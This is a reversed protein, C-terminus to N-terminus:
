VCVRPRGAAQCPRALKMRDGSRFRARDAVVVAEHVQVAHLVDELKVGEALPLAIAQAEEEDAGVLLDEAVQVVAEAVGVGHVDRERPLVPPGCTGRATATLEGLGRPGHADHQFRGRHDDPTVDYGGLARVAQRFESSQLTDLVAVVRPDGLHVKPICLDFRETAVPVFDLGLARAAALIGLGADAGGSQVQVAVGMHTFEEREYGRIAAPSLGARGLEYDFLVRTGSGAQRNVFTVDGRALDAIGRIRKPNGRAVLLGQERLTLTVLRVPTGQLVREVDAVNYEGTRPDLLHTGAFHCRGDRVALLGGLSGVNSASVSLEPVRRRLDDALHDLVVDHSGVVVLTRDLASRPRFLEVKVQEGAALGESEAPIRLLGDARTLSTITGAGRKLPLAVVREGVRGVHVRVLEEQGLKSALRRAVTATVTERVPVPQGQMRALAPLLIQDFCVWASVPYGPSGVFPKGRAEGLLTPKGPMVTIGHVLVRGLEELVHVTYDESGHSAGANVVVVHADSALAGAVSDRIAEFSDPQRPLVVPEGGAESVLGALLLSNSEVIAGPAPPKAEAERWDILESGTALIAVRPKRLVALRFVGATVLAAVDAPGLRQHRPLVLESAVTDEGVGRVHQGPFAAARIEAEGVDRNDFAVPLIEVQEIMIVADTGPPLPRGTNVLHAQRGLALRLPREESAGFTDAAAVAIGDMAAGNYAPSSYAAFVPAATVRGRAEATPIEETGALGTWDFAGLFTARADALSTMRLFVTRKM